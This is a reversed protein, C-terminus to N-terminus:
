QILFIVCGSVEQLPIDVLLNFLFAGRVSDKILHFKNPVILGAHEM